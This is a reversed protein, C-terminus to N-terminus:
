VDDQRRCARFGAIRCLQHLDDSIRELRGHEAIGRSGFCSGFALFLYFCEQLAILLKRTCRLTVAIPTSYRPPPGAPNTQDYERHSTAPSAVSFLEIASQAYFLKGRSGGM